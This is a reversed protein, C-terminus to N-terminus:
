KARNKVEEPKKKKRLEDPTITMRRGEDLEVLLSQELVNLKIVRAEGYATTVRSGQKPLKKLQDSYTGAEFSM